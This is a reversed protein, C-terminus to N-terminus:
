NGDLYYQFFRNLKNLKVDLYYEGLKFSGDSDISIHRGPAESGKSSYRITVQGDRTILLSRGELNNNLRQGLELSDWFCIEPKLLEIPFNLSYGSETSSPM